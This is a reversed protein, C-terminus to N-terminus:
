PAGTANRPDIVDGLADRAFSASAQAQGQVAGIDPYSTSAIAPLTTAVQALLAAGTTTLSFDQTSPSVFPSASLTKFGVVIGLTPLTFGACDVITSNGYPTYGNSAARAVCRLYTSRRVDALQQFQDAVCNIAAGDVNIIATGSARYAICEVFTAGDSGVFDQLTSNIAVCRFCGAKNWNFATRCTRTLSSFIRNTQSSNNFAGNTYDFGNAICNTISNWNGAYRIGGGVNDATNSFSGADFKVNEISLNWGTCDVLRGSANSVAQQVLPRSASEAFVGDLDGRTAGYGRWRTAATGTISWSCVGNSVNPTVSTISYTGSKMWITHGELLAAFVRGPSAMAGGIKMTLASATSVAADVTISNTSGVATIQRSAGGINIGNGIYASSFGGTASTITTSGNAVGDSVSLQAADQQSYDNGGGAFFGGNTDSGTTRIEWVASSSIAM